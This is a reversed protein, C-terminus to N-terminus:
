RKHPSRGMRSKKKPKTRTRQKKPKLKRRTRQKKGKSKKKKKKKSSSTEYYHGIFEKFRKSNTIKSLIEIIKIKDIYYNNTNFIKHAFSSTPGKVPIRRVGEGNDDIYYGISSRDIFEITIHKKGLIGTYHINDVIEHLPKQKGTYNLDIKIDEFEEKIMPDLPYWQITEAARSRKKNINLRFSDNATWIKPYDDYNIRYEM